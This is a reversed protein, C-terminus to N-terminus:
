VQTYVTSQQRWSEFYPSGMGPPFWPQNFFSSCLSIGPALVKQAEDWVALSCSLTISNKISAPRSKRDQWIVDILSCSSFLVTELYIRDESPQSMLISILNTLSAAMYYYRLNPVNLGGSVAPKYLISASCRPRKNDWIFNNIAAQWKNLWSNSVCIPLMRFVFLFRTLILTKILSIRDPWSFKQEPLTALQKQTSLFLPSYSTDFLDLIVLPIIIALYKWSCSVWKLNFTSRILSQTDPDILVLYLESKSISIYLGM